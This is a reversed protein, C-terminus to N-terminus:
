FPYHTQLRLEQVYDVGHLEQGLVVARGQRIRVPTPEVWGDSTKALIGFGQQWDNFPKNSPVIGDVRCTCGFTAGFVERTSGDLDIRTQWAIEQRHVHGCIQSLHARQGLLKAATLGGRSGVSQGHQFRIGWPHVLDGAESGYPALYQVDISDLGLLREISLMPPGEPDTVPPAESLEPMSDQLCRRVRLEHNGEQYYIHAHPAARRLRELWWRLELMAPYTTRQTSAPRSFKRTSEACDLMDGNLLIFSLRDGLLQAAQVCLDLAQRDHYPQLEERITRSYGIQSDPIILAYQQAPTAVYPQRKVPQWSIDIMAEVAPDIRQFETSCLEVIRGGKAQSQWEKFKTARWQAVDLNHRALVEGPTGLDTVSDTRILNQQAKHHLRHAQQHSLGLARGIERYSHGAERLAAVAAIVEASHTM